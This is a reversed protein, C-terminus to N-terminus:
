RTKRYIKKNLRYNSRRHNYSLLGKKEAILAKYHNDKDHLLTTIKEGVNVYIPYKPRFLFINRVIKRFVKDFLM